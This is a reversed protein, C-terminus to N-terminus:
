RALEEALADLRAGSLRATPQDDVLAAPGSACLGLCYVPEIALSGDARAEGMSLGAAECLRSVTDDAGRAQCAEALCVKVVRRAPPTQRFDHYFTVVGHVEARSLNLAAAIQPVAEKPIYGLAQQVEHLIPLLAGEVDQHRILVQDICTADHDSV